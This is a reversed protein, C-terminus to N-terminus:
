DLIARVKGLLEDGSFPKQLFTARDMREGETYGSMFLTKLNPHREALLEAMEIGNMGPMIMDTIVLNVARLDTLGKWLAALKEGTMVALERQAEFQAVTTDFRPDTELTLPQTQSWDGITLRVQYEGPVAKPGGGGGGGWMVIGRPRTFLSEHRGDWRIRNLGPEVDLGGGASALQARFRAPVDEISM